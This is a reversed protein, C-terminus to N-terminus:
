WRFHAFAKNAEAQRHTNDRKKSAEGKGELADLFEAALKGSMAHYEKNSRNKAAELVWRIALATKRDGKVEVPVQYNAGGVRRAKIEVKPGIADLAKQFTDVPDMGKKEFADLMDYVIKEAAKKKGDIMVCNIFKAILTSGYIGDPRILRKVAKKHRM